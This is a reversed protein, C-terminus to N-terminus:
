KPLFNFIRHHIFNLIRRVFFPSSIYINRITEETKTEVKRQSLDIKINEKKCLEVAGRMWKGKTIATCYYNIPGHVTKNGKEALLRLHKSKTQAARKTGNIEFQWPNEGSILLEQLYKNKWIAIQLSCLYTSEKSIEAYNQNPKPTITPYITNFKEPFCTILFYDANELEHINLCKDLWDTKVPSTFLYDELILIINDEQIQELAIKMDDSWSNTTQTAITKVNEFNAIKKNSILYVPYSNNRWYKFFLEFFPNWLDSYADCSSIVIATTKM